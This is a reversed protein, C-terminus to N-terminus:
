ESNLALKEFTGIFNREHKANESKVNVISGKSLIQFPGRCTFYKSEILKSEICSIHLSDAVPSGLLEPKLMEIPIQKENHRYKFLLEHM